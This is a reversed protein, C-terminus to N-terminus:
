NRSVSQGTAHALAEAMSLSTSGASGADAEARHEWPFMAHWDPTIDVDTPTIVTLTPANLRAIFDAAADTDADTVETDTIAIVTRPNGSDATVDTALRLAPLIATGDEPSEAFSLQAGREALEGVTTTAMRVVATDAFAIVTITDDTRLNDPAWQTLQTIAETRVAEYSAFSGSEDLLLVVDLPVPARDGELAVDTIRRPQHTLEWAGWGAAALVVAALLPVWWPLRGPRRLRAPERLGGIRAVNPTLDDTVLPM